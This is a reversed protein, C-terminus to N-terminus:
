VVSKGGFAIIKGFSTVGSFSFNGFADTTTSVEGPNLVGDGNLDVFVTAGSVYGDIVNGSVGSAFLAKTAAVTAPDNTVNATVQQLIDLTHAAGEQVISYFYSVDVKNQFQLAVAGFTPDDPDMSSLVVVAEYFVDGRTLGSALMEEVTAVGAAKNEASALDGIINDIFKTAFENDSLSDAYMFQKFEASQALINALGRANDSALTLEEVFVGPAANFMAQVVQLVQLSSSSM